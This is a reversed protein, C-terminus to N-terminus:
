PAHSISNQANKENFIWNKTFILFQIATMIYKFHLM